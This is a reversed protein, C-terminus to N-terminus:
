EGADEQEPTKRLMDGLAQFTDSLAEESTVPEAELIRWHFSDEPGHPMLELVQRLASLDGEAAKLLLERREEREQVLRGKERPERTGSRRSEEIAREAAVQFARGLDPREELLAELVRADWERERASQLSRLSAGYFFNWGGRRWLLEFLERFARVEEEPTDLPWFTLEAGVSMASNLGRPSVALLIKM